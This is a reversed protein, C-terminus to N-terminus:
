ECLRVCVYVCGPNQKYSAKLELTRIVIVVPNGNAFVVWDPKYVTELFDKNNN